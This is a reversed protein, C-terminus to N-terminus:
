PNIRFVHVIPNDDNYGAPEGRYEIVYLKRNTSDYACAGLLYRNRDPNFAPDDIKIRNYLYSNLNISAYPQPEYPQTTGNAVAALDASDYLIIQAQFSDAWWGRGDNPYPPVAPVPIEPPDNIPFRTGDPYGYWYDGIGRTGIFIVAGKDGVTLWAGGSWDTATNFNNIQHGGGFDYGEPHTSSYSILRTSELTIGSSPPPNILFLSPGNGSWGGDRFRGTAIYDGFSSPVDFMYDNSSYLLPDGEVRWSGSRNTFDLDCSAHSPLNQDGEQFHAGWCSFLKSEKIALGSRRIDANNFLTTIDAIGSRINTLAQRTTATNLDAINDSVVPNPISVEGVYMTHDHGVIFLSNHDPNYTAGTGGWHWGITRGSSDTQEIYPLRFAGLYEFDSPMIRETSVTGPITSSTTETDVALPSTTAACGSNWSFFLLGALACLGILVLPALRKM